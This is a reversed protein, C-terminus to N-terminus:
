TRSREMARIISDHAKRRERIEVQQATYSPNRVYTKCTEYWMSVKVGNPAVLRNHEHLYPCSGAQATLKNWHGCTRCSGKLSPKRERNFKAVQRKRDEETPACKDCCCVPDHPEKSWDKKGFAPGDRLPSRGPSILENADPEDGFLERIAQDMEFEAELEAIFKKTMENDRDLEALFADIDQGELDEAMKTLELWDAPEPEVKLEPHSCNVCGSIEGVM